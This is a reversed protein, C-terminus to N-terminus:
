KQSKQSKLIFTYSFCSRSRTAQVSFLPGAFLREKPEQFFSLFFSFALPPFICFYFFLFCGKRRKKKRKGKNKKIEKRENKLVVTRYSWIISKYCTWGFLRKENEAELPVKFMDSMM